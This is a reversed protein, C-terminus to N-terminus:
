AQAPSVLVSAPLQIYFGLLPAAYDAVQARVPGALCALFAFAIAKSMGVCSRRSRM